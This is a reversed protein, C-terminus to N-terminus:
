RYMAEVLEGFQASIARRKVKQTATLEGEEHDLEKPLFAFRKIQEVSALDRNVEDVWAQVLRSVEPKETLDRYTTFAIQERTAWDRVTDLEIGILATLYKRRDGLVIAERVYPSVKLKNEIWSPSVNKGGATILIDKKRDTIRLYGDADFEGVDGSHLWGDADVTERTAEENRYYGPFVGDSRVLIEGDDAIRVEVGELPLGVTGIRARDRPNFTALGTGETQGYGECIPVGLAWFFELVQPAIPAAGSGAQRVLALGLRERLARFLLLWGFAGILREFVTLSAQQLRKRALRRGIPLWTAYVMRKLWSADAMRIEVSAMM